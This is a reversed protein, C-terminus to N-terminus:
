TRLLFLKFIKIINWTDHIIIIYYLCSQFLISHYLQYYNWHLEVIGTSTKARDHCIKRSQHFNSCVVISVNSRLNTVKRSNNSINSNHLTQLDFADNLSMRSGNCKFRTFFQWLPSNLGHSQQFEIISLKQDRRIVPKHETLESFQLMKTRRTQLMTWISYWSSYVFVDKQYNIIISVAYITFIGIKLTQHCKM